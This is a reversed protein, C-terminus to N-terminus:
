QACGCCSHMKAGTLVMDECAVGCPESTTGESVFGCKEYFGKAEPLVSAYIASANALAAKNILMKMVFDGYGQGRSEKKVVIHSIEFRDGDFTIRGTGVVEDKEDYAVAQVAYTDIEDLEALLAHGPEEGFVEKRLAAIQALHEKGELYKGRVM